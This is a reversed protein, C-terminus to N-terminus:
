KDEKCSMILEAWTLINQFTNKWCGTVFREGIWIEGRYSLSPTNAFPMFRYRITYCEKGVFLDEHTLYGNLLTDITHPIKNEINRTDRELIGKSTAVDKKYAKMEEKHCQLCLWLDYGLYSTQVYMVDESEIECYDCTSPENGVDFREFYPLSKPKKMVLAHHPTYWYLFLRQSPTFRKIQDHAEKRNPKIMLITNKYKEIRM